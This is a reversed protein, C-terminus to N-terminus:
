SKDLTQLAARVMATRMQQGLRSLEVVAQRANRRAEPNRQKLIPVVVQEFLGVEREAALKYIRFHRPEIGFKEFGAALRAVTLADSNFFTTGAVSQSTILGYKILEEVVSLDLGSASALEAATLTVEEDSEPAAVASSQEGPGPNSARQRPDMDQPVEMVQSAKRQDSKLQAPELGLAARAGSADKGAPPSALGLAQRAAELGDDRGGPESKRVHESVRINRPALVKQRAPDPSSVTQRPASEDVYTEGLPKDEVVEPRPTEHEEEAHEISTAVRGSTDSPRIGASTPRRSQTAMPPRTLPKGGPSLLNDQGARSHEGLVSRIHEAAVPSSSADPSSASSGKRVSPLDNAGSTRVVDRPQGSSKPVATSNKASILAGGGSIGSPADSGQKVTPGQPSPRTISQQSGERAFKTAHASSSPVDQVSDRPSDPDTQGVVQSSRAVASPDTVASNPEKLQVTGIPSGLAPSPSTLGLELQAQGASETKIDESHASEGQLRGKIVKLPLFNERQQRLIWRLRDVDDDYFKRYGSPTREPDLLGQSELFRIKSITIDPFDERLLNLVDGISLFARESM